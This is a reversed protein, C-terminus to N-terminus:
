GVEGSLDWYKKPNNTRPSNKQPNKTQTKNPTKNLKKHPKKKKKTNQNPKNKQESGMLPAMTPLADWTGQLQRRWERPRESRNHRLLLPAKLLEAFVPMFLIDRYPLSAHFGATGKCLLLMWMFPCVGSTGGFIIASIASTPTCFLQRRNRKRWPRKGGACGRVFWVM